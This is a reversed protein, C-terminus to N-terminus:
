ILALRRCVCKVVTGQGPKSDVVLEAGISEARHKMLKLGRGSTEGASAAFGQGDDRVTLTVRTDEIQLLVSVNQANSHRHANAVAEQAIRLLHESDAALLRIPPAGILRFRITPGNRVSFRRGLDNLAQVLGGEYDALPSLGRAISQCTDLAWTTINIATALDRVIDIQSQGAQKVTRSLLLKLGALEQALGDHLEAGLTNRQRTAADLLAHEVFEHGPMDSMVVHHRQSPRDFTLEVRVIRITASMVSNLELVAVEKVGHDITSQLATRLAPRSSTRLFDFISRGQLDSRPERVLTAGAPNIEEITGDVSLTFYGVPAREFLAMYRELKTELEQTM